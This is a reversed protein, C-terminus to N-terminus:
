SSIKGFKLVILTVFIPILFILGSIFPIYWYNSDFTYYNLVGLMLSLITYTVWLNKNFTKTKLVSFYLEVIIFVPMFASSLILVIEFFGNLGIIVAAVIALVFYIYFVSDNFKARLQRLMYKYYNGSNIIKM